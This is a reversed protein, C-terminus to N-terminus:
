SEGRIPRDPPTGRPAGLRAGGGAVIWADLGLTSLTIHPM